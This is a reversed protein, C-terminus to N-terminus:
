VQQPVPHTDPAMGLFEQFVDNSILRGRATLRVRNGDFDLLEADILREVREMAAAVASGGFEREVSAVDVGANLRLGLFWAEEHQQERTVWTMESEQPEALYAKLDDTTTARLLSKECEFSGEAHLADAAHFMSAADLGVGIYPRREWYRLNHRSHFGPRCFNSIEYQVLGAQGLREIAREYMRAMTDDTPVVGAHYRAGGALMERGLRSDEDVELM